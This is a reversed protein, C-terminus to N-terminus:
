QSLLGVQKLWRLQSTLRLLPEQSTLRKLLQMELQLGSELKQKARLLPELKLKLTEISTVVEVSVGVEDFVEVTFKDGVEVSVLEAAGTEVTVEVEVCTEVKDCIGVEVGVKDGVKVSVLEIGVEVGVEPTHM